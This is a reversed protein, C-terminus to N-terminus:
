QKSGKGLERWILLTLLKEADREAYREAEEETEELIGALDKVASRNYFYCTDLVNPLGQAWGMFGKFTPAFTSSGSGICVSYRNEVMYINLIFGAVDSFNNKDGAWDDYGDPCFHNLIYARVNERAKKSNTRLM